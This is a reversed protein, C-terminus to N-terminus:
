LRHFSRPFLFGVVWGGLPAWYLFTLFGTSMEEMPLATSQSAHMLAYAFNEPDFVLLSVVGALLLARGVYMFPEGDYAKAVESFTQWGLVLLALGAISAAIERSVSLIVIVYAVYGIVLGVRFLVSRRLMAGSFVGMFFGAASGLLYYGYLLVPIVGSFPFILLVMLAITLRRSSPNRRFVGDRELSIYIGICIVIWSAIGLLSGFGEMRVLESIFNGTPRFSVFLEVGSLLGQGFDGL